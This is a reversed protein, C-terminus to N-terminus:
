DLLGEVWATPAFSKWAEGSSELTVCYDSRFASGRPLNLHEAVTVLHEGTAPLTAPVTNPLASSDIRALFVNDIRDTLLLTARQGTTGPGPLAELALTVTEGTAGTFVFLDQDLLSPPRDDGLTSCLTTVPELPPLPTIFQGFARPGGGVTVTAIVTNSATAIVSVTDSDLNAVYVFAGDPTVAVGQAAGGDVTATVTNSATDIVSVTGSAENAVYVSAGDPTVAVGFPFDGVPVTAIVTNTATDVVSVTDASSQTIYAFPAAQAVAASFAIGLLAPFGRRLVARFRRLFFTKSRKSCCEMITEQGTNLVPRLIMRTILSRM